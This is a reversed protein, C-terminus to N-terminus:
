ASIAEQPRKSTKSYKAHQQTADVARDKYQNTFYKTFIATTAGVLFGIPIAAVHAGPIPLVASLGIVKAGTLVGLKASAWASGGEYAGTSIVDSLVTKNSLQSGRTIHGLATFGAASATDVAIFIPGLMINSAGRAASGKTSRGSNIIYDHFFGSFDMSPRGYNAYVGQGTSSFLATAKGAMNDPLINWELKAGSEDAFEWAEDRSLVKKDGSSVTLQIENPLNYKSLYSNNTGDRFVHLEPPLASLHVAVTRAAIRKRIIRNAPLMVKTTNNSVVEDSLQPTAETTTESKHRTNTM